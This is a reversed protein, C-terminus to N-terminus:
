CSRARAAPPRLRWAIVLGGATALQILGYAAAPFAMEPRHFAAVAAFIALAANRIGTQLVLAVRRRGGIGLPLCLGLGAGLALLNVALVSPGAQDLLLTIRSRSLYLAWAVALVFFAMALILCPRRIRRVLAPRWRHLAMGALTPLSVAAFLGLAALLLPALEFGTEGYLLLNAIGVAAPASAVCTLSSAATVATALMVDGRALHTFLSSASGGPACAILVLGLGLAPALGFLLALGLALAPLLVSQLLLAALIVGPSDLTRRLDQFTLTLGLAFMIGVLALPLLNDAAFNMDGEHAAARRCGALPTNRRTAM